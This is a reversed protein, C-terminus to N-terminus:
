PLVEFHTMMGAHMHDSVHCHYMWIGPNDAVMDVSMMQAPAISVVDTRKGDQLVTNGHWHPTHFNFGDGLTVVYWRVREGKKMSLMPGTGFLYGNITWRINVDAFGIGTLSFAGDPTMLAVEDKKVGKPDSTYTEINHDLYWSQNENFATFLSVFERDVDKPSGDPKAKGRATVIIAGVLGSNVDKPEEVHSHYLWVVSSADAPGPGAREPILWEYTFTGGPPVAAGKKDSLAVGDHYLAGESPKLYFVGHPHMSYPISANNKFVVKITDGVTGRLLPGMIGLHEWAKARPKLKTFTGDTYERYIAKRYIKGIRHPGSEVYIKAFGEFAEGTMPDTESPAYNWEVEDAAVYYTRTRPKAAHQKTQGSATDMAAILFLIAVFFACRRARACITM